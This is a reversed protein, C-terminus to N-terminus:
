RGTLLGVFVGYFVAVVVPLWYWHYQSSGAGALYSVFVGEATLVCLGPLAYIAGNLLATQWPQLETTNAAGAGMFVSFMFLMFALMLQGLTGLIVGMLSM